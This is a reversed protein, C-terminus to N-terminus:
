ESGGLNAHVHKIAHRGVDRGKKHVERIPKKSARVSVHKSTTYVHAHM